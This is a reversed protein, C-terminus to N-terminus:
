FSLFFFSVFKLSFHLMLYKKNSVFKIIQSIFIIQTRIKEKKKEEKFYFLSFLYVLIGGREREDM